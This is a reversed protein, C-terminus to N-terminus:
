AWSSRLFRNFYMLMSLARLVDSELGIVQAATVKEQTKRRILCGDDHSDGIWCSFSWHWQSTPTLRSAGSMVGRFCVWNCVTWTEGSVMKRLTVVLYRWNESSPRKRGSVRVRLNGESYACASVCSVRHRLRSMLGVASELSM